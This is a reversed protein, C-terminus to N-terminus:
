KQRALDALITAAERPRILFGVHSSDISRVEFPNDPTLTDAERIFRDQLAVPM